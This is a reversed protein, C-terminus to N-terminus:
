TKEYSFHHYNNRPYARMNRSVRSQFHMDREDALAPLQRFCYAAVLFVARRLLPSSGKVLHGCEANEFSITDYSICFDEQIECYSRYSSSTDDMGVLEPAVVRKHETPISMDIDFMFFIESRAFDM